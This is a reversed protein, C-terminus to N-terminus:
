NAKPSIRKSLDDYFAKVESRKDQLRQAQDAATKGHLTDPYARALKQFLELAHDLEGRAEDAKAAGFLAEQALLADDRCEEALQAYLEGAKQLKEKATTPSACLSAIGQQFLLRAEQFRAVRAPMTGRHDQALAALADVDSAAGVKVWLASRSTLSSASVSRWVVYLLLALVALGAVILSSPKPGAKVSEVLKGVRDALVNTQLEKRHEAKM